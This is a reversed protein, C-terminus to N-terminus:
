FVTMSPMMFPQHYQKIKNLDKLYDFVLKVISYVNGPNNVLYSHLYDGIYECIISNDEPFLKVTKPLLKNHRELFDITKIHKLYDEEDTYTTSVYNENDKDTIVCVIKIYWRNFNNIASKLSYGYRGLPYYLPLFFEELVSIKSHEPNSSINVIDM